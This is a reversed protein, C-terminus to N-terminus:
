YTSSTVVNQPFLDVIRYLHADMGCTAHTHIYHHRLSPLTSSDLPRRQYVVHLFIYKSSDYDGNETNDVIYNIGVPICQM